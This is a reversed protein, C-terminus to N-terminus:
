RVWFFSPRPLPSGRAQCLGAPCAGSLRRSAPAQRPVSRKQREQSSFGGREKRGEARGYGRADGWRRTEKGNGARSGSPAAEAPKGAPRPPAPPLPQPPPRFYRPRPHARPDPPAAAMASRTSCRRSSRTGSSSCNSRTPRKVCSSILHPPGRAPPPPGPSLDQHQHGPTKKRAPSDQLLGRSQLVFYLPSGKPLLIKDIINLNAMSILPVLQM